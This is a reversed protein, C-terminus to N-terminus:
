ISIGLSALLIRDHLFVNGQDRAVADARFDDAFGDVCQILDSGAKPLYFTGPYICREM